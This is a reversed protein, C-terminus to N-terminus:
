QSFDYFNYVCINSEYSGVSDSNLIPLSTNESNSNLLLPLIILAFLLLIKIVIIKKHQINIM